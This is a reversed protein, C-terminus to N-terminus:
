IEALNSRDSVLCDSILLRERVIEEFVLDQRLLEGDGVDDPM